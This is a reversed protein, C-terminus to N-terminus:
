RTEVQVEGTELVFVDIRESRASIRFELATNIGTPDFILDPWDEPRETDRDAEIESRLRIDVARQLTIPSRNSMWAGQRWRTLAYGDETFRLGVPHGTMIAQEQAEAITEAFAEAAQLAPGKSAPLTVVVIGASLGIIFVVVMVEILSMGRQRFLPDASIM